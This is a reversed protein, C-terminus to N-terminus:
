VFVFQLYCILTVLITLRPRIAGVDGLGQISEPRVEKEDAEDTLVISVFDGSGFM